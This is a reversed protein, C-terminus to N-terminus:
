SQPPKVLFWIAYALMCVISVGAALGGKWDMGGLLVARSAANAGFTAIGLFM